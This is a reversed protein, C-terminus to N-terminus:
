QSVKLDSLSICYIKRYSTNMNSQDVCELFVLARADADYTMYTIRYDANDGLLVTKYVNQKKYDVIYIENSYAKYFVGFDDCMSIDIAKYIEPSAELIHKSPANKSNASGIGPMEFLARSLSFNEYYVINNKVGFHSVLQRAESSKDESELTNATIESTIDVSSIPMFSLDFSDLFMKVNTEGEMHLRLLYIYSEDATIHRITDGSQNESNFTYEYLKSIEKSEIDFINVVSKGSGPMSIYIKNDSFTMSNYPSTANDLFFATMTNDILNIDYLYNKSEDFNFADGTTILLYIHNNVSFTDYSAEYAWDDIVGLTTQENTSFNYRIYEVKSNIGTSNTLSKAYIFGDDIQFFSLYHEITTILNDNADYISLGETPPTNEEQEIENSPVIKSCACMGFCFAMVFLILLITRQSKM